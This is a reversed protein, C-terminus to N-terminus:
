FRDLPRIEERVLLTMTVAFIGDSIAALRDLSGGAIRHYLTRHRGDGEDSM